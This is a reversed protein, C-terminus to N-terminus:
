DAPDFAAYVIKARGIRDMLLRRLALSDKAASLELRIYGAAEDLPIMGGLERKRLLLIYFSDPGSIVRSIDGPALRSLENAFLRRLESPSLGSGGGEPDVEKAVREFPEGQLLRARASEATEAAATRRRAIRIVGVDWKEPLRYRLQNLQYYRKIESDTIKLLGRDFHRVLYLHVAAKLQFAPTDVQPLLERELEGRRAAPIDRFVGALYELALERSPTLGASKLMEGLLRRCIEDDVARRIEDRVAAKQNRGDLSALRPRLVAALESRTVPVGNFTALVEPLEVLEVAGCSLAAIAAIAAPLLSTKM